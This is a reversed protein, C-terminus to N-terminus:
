ENLQIQSKTAMSQLGSLEETWLIRWVLMNAHTPMEQKLPDEQGLSQDQTECITPLYRYINVM